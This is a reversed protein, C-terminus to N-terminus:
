QTEQAPDARNNDNAAHPTTMIAQCEFEVIAAPGSPLDQHGGDLRTATRVVGGDFVLEVSATLPQLVGDIELGWAGERRWWLRGTM